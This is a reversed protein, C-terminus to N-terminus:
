GWLIIKGAKTGLDESGAWPLRIEHNYSSGKRLFHSGTQAQEPFLHWLGLPDDTHSLTGIGPSFEVITIVRNLPAIRNYRDIHINRATGWTGFRENFSDEFQSLFDLFLPQTHM